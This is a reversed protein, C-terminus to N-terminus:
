IQFSVGGRGIASMWSEGTLAQFMSFFARFIGNFKEKCIPDNCIEFDPILTCNATINTGPLYTCNPTFLGLDRFTQERSTTDFSIMGVLAFCYLFVFLYVFMTFITFWSKLIGKVIVQIREDHGIFQLTLFFKKTVYLIRLYIVTGFFRANLSTGVTANLLVFIMSVVNVIVDLSIAFLDFVNLFSIGKNFFFKTRLSIIRFLVDLVLIFEFFFYIGAMVFFTIAPIGKPL